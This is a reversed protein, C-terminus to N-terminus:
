GNEVEWKEVVIDGESGYEEVIIERAREERKTIAVLEPNFPDRRDMVVFVYEIEFNKVKM